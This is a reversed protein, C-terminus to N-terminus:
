WPNGPVNADGIPTQSTRMWCGESLPPGPVRPVLRDAEGEMKRCTGSAQSGACGTLKLQDALGYVFPHFGVGQVTGSVFIARREM